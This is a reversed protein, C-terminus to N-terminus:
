TTQAKIIAFRIVVQESLSGTSRNAVDITCSGAAFGHANLVYAGFTGNTVHNLILVDKAEINSNNFTFSAIADAALAANNMTIDGCM